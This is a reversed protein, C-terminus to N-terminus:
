RFWLQFITLQVRLFLSWHFKLRFKLMKMWSFSDSFTTQSISAMKDRGWHTLSAQPTGYHIYGGLKHDMGQVTFITRFHVSVVFTHRISLRASLGKGTDAELVTPLPCFVASSISLRNCWGRAYCVYDQVTWCTPWLFMLAGSKGLLLTVTEPTAEGCWNTCPRVM